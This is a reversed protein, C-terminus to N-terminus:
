TRGHDYSRRALDMPRGGRLVEVAGAEEVLEGIRTVAIGARAAMFRFREEDEPPVAALIEYDDGGTLLAALVSDDKAVTVLDPDLPVSDAHIVAGCGSAAVLKDCDGILGDSVDMAASACARVAEALATRPQPVRYRGILRQRAAPPLPGLITEGLLLRLGAAGCGIEGSVYLRDGPRGGFRHVMEGAPVKGFATISVTLGSAIGITDGGLLRTDFERQDEALGRCFEAIWGEEVDRPFAVTMIYGAPKAGKSAVDSLNVRLAKRAITDAPDDPLFHVGAAVMDATVVLEEGPGLQLIAADDTLDFAGEGALPRFYRRILDFEGIAM